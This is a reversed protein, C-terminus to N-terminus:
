DHYRGSEFRGYPWGLPLKAFCITDIMNEAGSLWSLIQMEGYQIAQAALQVAKLGTGFRILPLPQHLNLFGMM